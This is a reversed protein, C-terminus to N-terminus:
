QEQLYSNTKLRDTRSSTLFDLLCRWCRKQIPTLFLQPDDADQCRDVEEQHAQVHHAAGEEHKTSFTCSFKEREEPENKTPANTKKGTSFGM